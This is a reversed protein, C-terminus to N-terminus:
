RHLVDHCNSCIPELDFLPERGANEYSLHHVQTAKQDCGDLRATCYKGKVAFVEERKDEWADSEIYAEYISWWEVETASEFARRWREPSAKKSPISPDDIIEQAIGLYHDDLTQRIVRDRKERMRAIEEKPTASEVQEDTLEDHPIWGDGIKEGCQACYRGYNNSANVLTTEPHSCAKRERLAEGYSQGVREEVKDQLDRPLEYFDDVPLDM